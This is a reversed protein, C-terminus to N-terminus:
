FIKIKIKKITKICKDSKKPGMKELSRNKTKLFDNLPEM